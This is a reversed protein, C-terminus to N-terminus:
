KVEIRTPQSPPQSQPMDEKIYKMIPKGLIHVGELKEPKIGCVAEKVLGIHSQIYQTASSSFVLEIGEGKARNMIALVIARKIDRAMNSPNEKTCKYVVDDGVGSIRMTENDQFQMEVEQNKASWTFSQCRDGAGLAHNLDSEDDFKGRINETAGDEIIESSQAKLQNFVKIPIVGKSKMVISGSKVADSQKQKQQIPTFQASQQKVVHDSHSGESQKPKPQSSPEATVESSIQNALQATVQKFKDVVQNKLSNINEASLLRLSMDDHSKNHADANAKNGAPEEYTWHEGSNYVKLTGQKGANNYGEPKYPRDYRPSYVTLDIGLENALIGLQPLSLMVSNEINGLLNASRQLNPSWYEKLISDLKKDTLFADKRAIKIERDLELQSYKKGTKKIKAIEAEIMAKASNNIKEQLTKEKNEKDVPDVASDMEQKEKKFAADGARPLKNGLNKLAERRILKENASKNEDAISLGYESSKLFRNFESKIKQYFEKHANYMDSLSGVNLSEENKLVNGLVDTFEYENNYRDRQLIKSVHLRLVPALIREHDVPSHYEKLLAKVQKWTPREKLGYYEQFTALLNQYEEPLQSLQQDSSQDLKYVLFHSMCNLGCNNHWGSTNCKLTQNFGATGGTSM